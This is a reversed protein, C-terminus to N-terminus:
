YGYSNELVMSNISAMIEQNSSLFSNLAGNPVGDVQSLKVEIVGDKLCTILFQSYQLGLRGMILQDSEYTFNQQTALFYLSPDTYIPKIKDVINNSMPSSESTVLGVLIMSNEREEAAVSIEFRPIYTGQGTENFKYLSAIINTPNFISIM